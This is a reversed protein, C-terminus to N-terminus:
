NRKLIWFTGTGPRYLALNNAKGTHNYDMAFIQDAPSKLDYGGVGTGPDGQRYVPVFAGGSNKLVWFTGTAPRYLAIHDKKGSGDFDYALARDAGSKLDYGGIGTGPDGQHYVPTFTGATNKLIWFTGTGPRYLAIHDQKGSHEYDFAFAQDAASKLDYGGIGTGPDGQHFVPSFTGANNKLIWFTGTAPRYLAIHDLKGSHDYDFAFARDAPSKMDFGGIGSGPDGQHYVPSFTGQENKLIWFTGTGPRYLAIHDQCGSHNYDFAFSRDAASKLDYGGIGTGPDGQHYVPSFTGAANKLIWFTGTRPRYLAIHDLKGSHDYDFAFARDAPSKLDYGGIGNGPDGQRYVASFKQKPYVQDAFQADQADIDAGGVVAVGDKMISGPLWYCMISQPDAHATAILASSNLPTLVQQTVEQASWGQTQNFYTIAKDVDIRNVIEDRKHEHPFGLTHGTEHRVVRHFESDPTAMSFSDLNMTPQDAPILRVDTGLYSWYGDGATRSIRVDGGTSVEHFQVNAFDGWANMHALIRARLDAPANDLFRVSLQVGTTPWRKETLLALHDPQLVGPPAAHALHMRPANAPNIAIATAAAAAWDKPPLMKITCTCPPLTTSKTVYQDTM